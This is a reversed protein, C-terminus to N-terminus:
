VNVVNEKEIIYISENHLETKITGDKKLVTIDYTAQNVNFLKTEESSIVVKFVNEGVYEAEKQLNLAKSTFYIKDVVEIGIEVNVLLSLTDGKIIELDKGCM